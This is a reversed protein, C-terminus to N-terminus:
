SQPQPNLPIVTEFDQERANMRFTINRTTEDHQMNNTIM